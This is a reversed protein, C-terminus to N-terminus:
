RLLERLLALKSEPPPRDGNRWALITSEGVEVEEGLYGPRWGGALLRGVVDQGEVLRAEREDRSRHRRKVMTM